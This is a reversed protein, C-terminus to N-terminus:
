WYIKQKRFSNVAMDYLTIVPLLIDYLIIELGMRSLQLKRAARNMVLLMILLRILWLAIVAAILMHSGYLLTVLLLAYIMGRTFPQNCAEFALTIANTIKEIDFSTIQGDRRKVSIM